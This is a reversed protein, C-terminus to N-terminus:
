GCGDAHNYDGGDDPVIVEDVGNIKKIDMKDLFDITEGEQYVKGTRGTFTGNNVVYNPNPDLLSFNWEGNGTLDNLCDGGVSWGYNFWWETFFGYTTGYKTVAKDDAKNEDGPRPNYSGTFLMSLDEIEDWNMPIRNNFVLVERDSPVVWEYTNAGAYYYPTENRYYGKAPVTVGTLGLAEKTNGNKDAVGGKNWAELDEEDVSIVKIGAQKFMTENYYLASPQSDVPLGWLEENNNSTNNQPNYHLRSVTTEMIDGLDIDTISDMVESLPECYEGIVWSKFKADAVLFVDPGNKSGVTYLVSQEYSSNPKASVKVEIGHEKGYTKNFEEVLTSYMNLQEASGSVWFKVEDSAGGGCATISSLMIFSALTASLAKTVNKKMYM